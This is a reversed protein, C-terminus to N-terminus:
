PQALGLIHILLPITAFSCLTAALVGFAALQGQGARAALLPFITIMPLAAFLVGATALPASVGPFIALAGWVALPHLGLKGVVVLAVARARGRAPLSALMGGIVLLALPASLQALLQLVTRAAVPLELGLMSVTGGAVLALLLPNRIQAWLISLRPRTSQEPSNFAILLLAIPLILLNEVVLCHAFIRVAQEAPLLAQAIPFGLFSSNSMSVGLAIVAAEAHSLAFLTRAAAFCLAMTMVSGLGYAVLFAIDFAQDAPTAALALFILAPLAVKIVVQGVPAVSQKDLYGSRVVLWGLGIVAFLPFVTHVLYM